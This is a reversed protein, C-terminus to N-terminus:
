KFIKILKDLDDYLIGAKLLNLIDNHSNKRFETFPEKIYMITPVNYSLSELFTTANVISIHLRANTLSKLVM